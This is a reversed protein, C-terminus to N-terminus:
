IGLEVFGDFHVFLCYLYIPVLIERVQIQTLDVLPTSLVIVSNILKLIRDLEISLIANRQDKQTHTIFLLLPKRLGANHEFPGLM